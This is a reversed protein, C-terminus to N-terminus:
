KHHYISSPLAVGYLDRPQSIKKADNNKIKISRLFFRVLSPREITQKSWPFRSLKKKQTLLREGVNENFKRAHSVVGM